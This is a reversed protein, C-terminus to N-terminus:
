ERLVALKGRFEEEDIEGRALRERLIAEPEGKSLPPEDHSHGFYRILAAIGFVLVAWFILMVVAMFVWNGTDWGNNGWYYAM